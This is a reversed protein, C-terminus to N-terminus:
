GAGSTSNTLDFTSVRQPDTSYGTYTIRGYFGEDLAEEFVAPTVSRGELLFRDRGTYSIVRPMPHGVVIQNRLTDAVHIVM